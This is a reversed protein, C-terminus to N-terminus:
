NMSAFRTLVHQSVPRISTQHAHSERPSDSLMLLDADDVLSNETSELNRVVKPLVDSETIGSATQIHGGEPEHIGLKRVDSAELLLHHLIRVVPSHLETGSKGAKSGPELASSKRVNVFIPAVFELVDFSTPGVSAYKRLSSKPSAQAQRLPAQTVQQM